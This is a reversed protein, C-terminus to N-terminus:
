KSGYLLESARSVVEKPTAYARKILETITAGSLPDIDQFAKRAEARYDPDQMTADFARRLADLRDAPMGPPGTVPRGIEQPYAIIDFVALDKPDHVFERALPVDPLEAIRSAGLQALFNLKKGVILAPQSAKMTAYSLGCIGEVEGREMALYMATTNYGAIPKFRTGVLKNLLRPYQTAATLVGTSGTIVERERAQEITKVPSSHWTVCINSQKGASGIFNLTQPDFQINNNDFLPQILLTNYTALIVSGDRPARNAIHNMAAIGGATDLNQVVISPHGPIHRGLHHSLTRAYLDYGGGVSAGIMLTLGKSRYFEEVTQASAAAIGTLLLLAAAACRL